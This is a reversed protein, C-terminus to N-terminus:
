TRRSCYKADLSEFTLLLLSTGLDRLRACFLSVICACCCHEYDEDDHDDEEEDSDNGCSQFINQDHRPIGLCGSVMSFTM